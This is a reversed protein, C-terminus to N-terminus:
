SGAMEPLSVSGYGAKVSPTCSSTKMLYGSSPPITQPFTRDFHHDVLGLRLPPSSNIHENM